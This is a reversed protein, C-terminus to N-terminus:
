LYISLYISLYIPITQLLYISLYISVSHIAKNSKTQNVKKRQHFILMGLKNLKTQNPKTKCCM